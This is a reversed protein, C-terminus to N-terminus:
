LNSVSGLYEVLDPDRDKRKIALDVPLEGRRNRACPYAGGEVLLRATDVNGHSAAWHLPTLGHTEAVNPDAGLSLLLQVANAHGWAAAGHLPTEGASDIHNVNSGEATLRRIEDLDGAWAAAHLETEAAGDTAKGPKFDGCVFNEGLPTALFWTQDDFGAPLRDVERWARSDSEFRYGRAYGEKVLRVLADYAEGESVTRGLERSLDGAISQSSEYDDLLFGLVERDFNTLPM